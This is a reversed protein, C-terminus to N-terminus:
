NNKTAPLTTTTNGASNTINKQTGYQAATKAKLLYSSAISNFIAMIDTKYIKHKDLSHGGNCISSSKESEVYNHSYDKKVVGDPSQGLAYFDGAMTHWIEESIINNLEDAKGEDSLSNNDTALNDLGKTSLYGTNLGKGKDKDEINGHGVAGEGENGYGEKQVLFVNESPTNNKAANKLKEEAQTKSLVVINITQTVAFTETKEKGNENYELDTGEKYYNLQVSSTNTITKTTQGNMQLAHDLDANSVDVDAYVYLTSSINIQHLEYDITVVGGKGSPDNFIIPNNNFAAYPSWGAYKAQLPDISLFRCIRSDYIRAGFDYDAGTSGNWEDDKEKGNFSYWAWGTRTESFTSSRNQSFV